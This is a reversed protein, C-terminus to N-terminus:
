FHEMTHVPFTATTSSNSLIASYMCIAATPRASHQRLRLRSGVGGGMGLGDTEVGGPLLVM